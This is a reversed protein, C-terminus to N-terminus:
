HRVRYVVCECVGRVSVTHMGTALLSQWCELADYAARTLVRDLTDIVDAVTQCERSVRAGDHATVTVTYATRSM